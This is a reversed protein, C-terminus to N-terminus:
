RVDEEDRVVVKKKFLHYISLGVLAAVALVGVIYFLIRLMFFAAIAGIIAFAVIISQFKSM